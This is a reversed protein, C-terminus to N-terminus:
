RRLPPYGSNPPPPPTQPGPVGRNDDLEAEILALYKKLMCRQDPNIPM